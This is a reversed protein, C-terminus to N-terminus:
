NRKFTCPAENANLSVEVTENDILTVQARTKWEDCGVWGLLCNREEAIFSQGQIRDQKIIRQMGRTTRIKTWLNDLDISDVNFVGTSNNKLSILLKDGGNMNKVKVTATEYACNRDLNEYKGAMKTALEVTAFTSFSSLLALAM